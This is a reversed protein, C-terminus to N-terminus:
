SRYRYRLPLKVGHRRHVAVISHWAMGLREIVEDKNVRRAAMEAVDQITDVGKRSKTPFDIATGRKRAMQYCCDCLERGAILKVRGCAACQRPIKAM